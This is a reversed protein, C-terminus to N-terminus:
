ILGCCEFGKRAGHLHRIFKYHRHRVMELGLRDNTLQAFFKKSPRDNKDGKLSDAFSVGQVGPPSDIGLFDLLTPMVDILGVVNRYATGSPIHGPWSIVFPVKLVEEYLTKGHDGRGHEYFEEGHDSTVIVLSQDLVGLQKLQDLLRSVHHDTYLIEGDYQDIAKGVWEQRTDKVLDIPNIGGARISPDRHLDFSQDFPPPPSYPAHPDIYHVYLFCPQKCHQATWDLAIDTVAEARPIIPQDAELFRFAADGIADEAVTGLLTLRLPSEVKSVSFTDFGQSFGFTPSVNANASVGFTQYGAERLTEALTVISGPLFDRSYNTKHVAPYLSSFLTAVSPRTHSAAAYMNTLTVGRQALDVLNPATQRSYGYLPLHDARLTDIMIFVVHPRKELEADAQLATSTTLGSYARGLYRPPLLLACGIVIVLLLPMGARLLLGSHRRREIRSLIARSVRYLLMGIVMAGIIASVYAILNSLKLIPLGLQYTAWATLYLWASLAVLTAWLGAIRQSWTHRYRYWLCVGGGTFLGGACGAILYSAGIHWYAQAQNGTYATGSFLVLAEIGGALVGIFAGLLAGHSLQELAHWVSKM